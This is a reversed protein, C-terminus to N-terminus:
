YFKKYNLTLEEGKKIKKNTKFEVFECRGEVIDINNDKSHNMYFSIDLANFGLQPVFYSDDDEPTIFDELIKKVSSPFKNAESKTIKVSKNNLCRSGSIRFPNTGKPIDRIAIVGVGHIKSIGIRCYTDDKLNKLLEKKSQSKKKGGHQNINKLKTYEKKVRNYENYYKRDM